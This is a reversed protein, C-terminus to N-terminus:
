SGSDVLVRQQRDAVNHQQWKLILLRNCRGLVPEVDETVQDKIADGEDNEIVPEEFM